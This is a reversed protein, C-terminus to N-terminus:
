LKNTKYEENLSNYNQIRERFEEDKEYLDLSRNVLKQLTFNSQICESKFSSYKDKIVKVSTLTLDNM